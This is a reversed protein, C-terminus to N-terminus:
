WFSMEICHDRSEARQERCLLVLVLVLVRWRSTWTRGYKRTMWRGERTSICHCHYNHDEIKVSTWSFCEDRFFIFYGDELSSVRFERRSHPIHFTSHLIHFASYGLALVEGSERERKVNEAEYLTRDCYVSWRIMQDDSWRRADTTDYSILDYQILYWIHQGSKSNKFVQICTCRAHVHVHLHVHLHFHFCWIHIM